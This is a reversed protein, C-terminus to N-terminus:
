LYQGPGHDPDDRQAPRAPAGPRAGAPARQPEGNEGIVVGPAIMTGPPLQRLQLQAAAHERAANQAAIATQIGHFLGELWGVLQAQAIRLEADSPTADNSFPLNIRDLEAVLEPALGDELEKISRAHIAALRGRAADDLPASKVEELLQRIMTGIRMVKAPEDVLDQLSSGRPKGDAASAAQVPDQTDDVPTGEVPLDEPAQTDNPDSM